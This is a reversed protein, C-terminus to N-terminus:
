RLLIQTREANLTAIQNDVQRIDYAVDEIWNKQIELSELPNYGLPRDSIDIPERALKMSENLRAKVAELRAIESDIQELRAQLAPNIVPKEIAEPIHTITVPITVKPTVSPTALLQASKIQQQQTYIIYILAIVIIACCAGIYAYIVGMQKQHHAVASIIGSEYIAPRLDCEIVM